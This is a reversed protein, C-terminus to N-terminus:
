LDLLKLNLIVPSPNSRVIGRQCYNHAIPDPPQTVLGNFSRTVFRYLDIWNFYVTLIMIITDMPSMNSCLAAACTCSAATTAALGAIPESSACTCSLAQRWRSRRAVLRALEREKERERQARMWCTCLDCSTLNILMPYRTPLLLHSNASTSVIIWCSLGCLLNCAPLLHRMIVIPCMTEIKYSTAAEKIMFRLRFLCIKAQKWSGRSRIPWWTSQKYSQSCMKCRDDQCKAWKNGIPGIFDVQENIKVTPLRVHLNM